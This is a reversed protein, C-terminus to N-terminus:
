RSRSMAAHDDAVIAALTAGADPSGGSGQAALRRYAASLGGTISQHDAPL